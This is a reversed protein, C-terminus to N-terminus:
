PEGSRLQLILWYREARPDPSAAYVGDQLSFGMNSDALTIHEPLILLADWRTVTVAKEALSLFDCGRLSADAGGGYSVSLSKRYRATLTNEGSLTLSATLYFVRKEYLVDCLLTEGELIPGGYQERVEPLLRASAEALLPQLAQQNELEMRTLLDAPWSELLEGVTTTSVSVSGSFDELRESCSGDTYGELVADQLPEGLVA